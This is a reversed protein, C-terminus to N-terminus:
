QIIANRLAYLTIDANSTLGMKELIRTRYTSVTKVSICLDAALLSVSRGAAIKCFVHFERPSLRCHLPQDGAANLDLLQEGLSTSLYRRGQLVARAAKLLADPASDKSLYGAAGSRLVNIAYQREPFGSLVLVKTDPQSARIQRLVELGSCDPMNIDLIVLDWSGSRFKDLTEGGSGAEDIETISAEEELLQRLGTRVMAHDDAILVRAM